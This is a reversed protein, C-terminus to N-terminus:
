RRGRPTPRRRHPQLIVQNLLLTRPLVIGSNRIRRVTEDRPYDNSHHGGGLLGGPAQEGGSESSGELAIIGGRTTRLHHLDAPMSHDVGEDICFNHLKALCNVLAVVKVLTINMPIASRLIAWRHVLMGFACEIRIRLKTMQRNTNTTTLLMTPFLDLAASIKIRVQSHYFNYTDESGSTVNPFPTAMYQTNLYANDGFLVLGNALLGNELRQYLDSAEFALCDSSAGGYNISMDLIRGRKDSVAQMNLGFKSKRACFLKRRSIGASRAEEESPRLIWILLGDIAGACNKFGIGSAAHFERAIQRQKEHDNPYSIHFARHLNVAEVVGWVSFQVETLSIKYTSLINGPSGGAFYRLACAL